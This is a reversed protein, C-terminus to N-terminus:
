EKFEVGTKILMLAALDEAIAEPPLRADFPTSRFEIAREPCHRVCEPEGGCLDCKIAVNRISHFFMSEAPCAEVCSRCGTCLEEQIVVSQTNEDKHIANVLCAEICKPKECQYCVKAIDIGPFYSLIRIRSMRPLM